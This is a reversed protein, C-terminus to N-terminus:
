LDWYTMLKDSDQPWPYIYPTENIKELFYYKNVKECKWSCHYASHPHICWLHMCCLPMILEDPVKLIKFNWVWYTMFCVRLNYTYLFFENSILRWWKFLKKKKENQSFCIGVRAGLKPMGIDFM